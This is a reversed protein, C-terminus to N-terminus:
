FEFGHNLLAGTLWLKLNPLNMDVECDRVNITATLIFRDSASTLNSSQIIFSTLSELVKYLSMAVREGMKCVLRLYFGREEVQFVDLQIIKTPLFQDSYSTQIIKKKTQDRHVKQTENISSELVSIESKLKKAQMQLEKVYLVADGVISAKDMKTINPVLSRLAYLKEKMRGRRRRESILTRTRDAKPKKSTTSSSNEVSENEDEDEDEDEVEKMISNFSELTSFLSNPDSNMVMNSDVIYELSQDVVRNEILCGNMFDLDFNNNFIPTENGGRILNVYQDFNDGHIFDQLEFQDNIDTMLHRGFQEM